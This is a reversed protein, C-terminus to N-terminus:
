GTPLAGTGRRRRLRWVYVAALTGYFLALLVVGTRFPIPLLVPLFAGLVWAVQFLVEYRVFVRGLAEPPAHRQMLAQFALRAFESAAGASLAYITLLPLGFLQSALLAGIGAASVAAIVVAEERRDTRLAPAAVDAIFGGVVGAGAVIAFWVPPVEADRLAFALLFLLFGAAARMGVAGMAPLQLRPVRGMPARDQRDVAKAPRALRGPNPLRGALAASVAYIAAAVYLPAAPDIAKLALVGFPLAAVAGAVGVRGLRANARMLGDQRSAYAMTLANKAITHVKSCVLIALALPFLWNTALRPALLIALGVRAAAAAFTISRRPGARDLIPAILPGALALPLMTLLLYATVRLRAQGVPVSFFVSDSLSVALLADGAVSALHNLGYADIPDDSRWMRQLPHTVVGQFARSVGLLALRWLPMRGPTGATPTGPANGM